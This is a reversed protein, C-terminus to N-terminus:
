PKQSGGGAACRGVAEGCIVCTQPPAPPLDIKVPPASYLMDARRHRRVIPAYHDVTRRWADARDAIMAAALEQQNFTQYSPM